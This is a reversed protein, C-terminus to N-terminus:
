FGYNLAIQPSYGIRAHFSSSIDFILKGLTIGVGAFYQMPKATVGARLVFLRDIDYALGARADMAQTTNYYVDATVLLEKSFRYLLGLGGEQAIHQDITDEFSSSSVNRLLVGIALMESITFHFGLDLSFTQDGGYGKVQYQHYNVSLSTSIFNGFARAYIARLTLLSSTGRLGYNNIAVGIVNKKKIPVVSFFAQAQIDNTLFHPQYAVAVQANALRSLGSANVTLNYVSPLALGTNGMGQLPAAFFEQAYIPLELLLLFIVVGTRM